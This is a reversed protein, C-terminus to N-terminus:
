ATEKLSYISLYPQMSFLETLTEGNEQENNVSVLLMNNITDYWTLPESIFNVAVQHKNKDRLDSNIIEFRYGAFPLTHKGTNNLIDPVKGGLQQLYGIISPTVLFHLKDANPVNALLEAFTNYKKEQNYYQAQMLLEQWTAEFVLKDWNKKSNVDIVKRYLLRIIGKKM